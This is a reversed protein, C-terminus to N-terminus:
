YTAWTGPTALELSRGDPDRCYLSQGGRDWTVRSEIAIGWADLQAEWAPLEDTAV